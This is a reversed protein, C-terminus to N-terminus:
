RVELITIIFRVYWFWWYFLKSIQVGPVGWNGWSGCNLRITNLANLTNLITYLTYHITYQSYMTDERKWQASALLATSFRQYRQTRTLKWEPPWRCRQAGKLEPWHANFRFQQAKSWNQAQQTKPFVESVSFANDIKIKGISKPLAFSIFLWPSLVKSFLLFFLLQDHDRELDWTSFPSTQEFQRWILHM